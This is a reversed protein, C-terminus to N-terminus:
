RAAARRGADCAGERARRRVHRVPQLIKPSARQRDGFVAEAQKNALDVREDVIKIVCAELRRAASDFQLRSM